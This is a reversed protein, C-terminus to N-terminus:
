ITKPQYGYKTSLNLLAECIEYCENERALTSCRSRLEKSIKRISEGSIHEEKYQNDLCSVIYDTTQNAILMGIIEQVKQTVGVDNLDQPWVQHIEMANITYFTGSFIGLCLLMLVHRLRIM